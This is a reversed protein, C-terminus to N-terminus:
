AIKRETAPGSKLFSGLDVKPDKARRAAVEATLYRQAWLSGREHKWPQVLVGDRVLERLWKGVGALSIKHGMSILADHASRWSLWWVGAGAEAQIAHCLAVLHQKAPKRYKLAAPPLPSTLVVDRARWVAGFEPKAWRSWMTRFRKWVRDWAKVRMFSESEVWWWHVAPRVVEAPQKALEPINKLSTALAVINTNTTHAETLACRRVAAWV